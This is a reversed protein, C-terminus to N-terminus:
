SGAYIIREIYYRATDKPPADPSGMWMNLIKKASNFSSAKSEMISKMKEPELSLVYEELDKADDVPRGDVSFFNYNLGDIMTDLGKGIDKRTLISM